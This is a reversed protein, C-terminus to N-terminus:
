EANQKEEKPEEEKIELMNEGDIKRRLIVYILTQGCSNIALPYAVVIMGIMIFSVFLFFTSLDLTWPMSSVGALNAGPIIQILYGAGVIRLARAVVDAFYFTEQNALLISPLYAMYLSIFSIIAFIFVGLFAMFWLIKNYIVLRWPQNWLVSYLQYLSEFTDEGTVAVIAPLLCLGFILAFFTLAMFLGLFYIVITFLTTLPTGIHKAVIEVKPILDILGFLSPFLLCFIMIAVLGLISLYISKGNRFSFKIADRMSYFDDGKLEEIAVKCVATSFILYIVLWIISGIITLIITLAPLAMSPKILFYTPCLGYNRWFESAFGSGTLSIYVLLEYIVYGLMLGLFHILIKKGKFGMRGAHFIDRFDFYLKKAM